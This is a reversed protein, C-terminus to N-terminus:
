WLWSLVTGPWPKFQLGAM